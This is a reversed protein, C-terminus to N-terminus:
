SRRRDVGEAESGSPQLIGSFGPQRHANLGEQHSAILNNSGKVGATQENEKRSGIQIAPVGGFITYEPVDKTVVAGAAIISGRGITVGPLVIVGAGLWVDAEIVTPKKEYGQLMMPVDLKDHKHQASYIYTNQAIMVYDGIQLGGTGDLVCGENVSIHSGLRIGRM